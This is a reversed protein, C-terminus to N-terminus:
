SEASLAPNVKGGTKTAAREAAIRRNLATLGADLEVRRDREEDTLEDDGSEGALMDLLTRARGREAAALADAGRGSAAYAHALGFYAKSSAELYRFRDEADGAVLDLGRETLDIASEYTTIAEKWRRLNALGEGLLVEADLLATPKGVSAFTDRAQRAILIGEE